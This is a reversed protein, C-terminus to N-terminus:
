KRNQQALAKAMAKVVEARAKAAEAKAKEAEAREKKEAAEKKEKAAEAKAAEAKVKPAQAVLDKFLEGVTFRRASNQKPVLSNFNSPGTKQIFYVATNAHIQLFGGKLKKPEKPCAVLEVEEEPEEEKKPKKPHIVIFLVDKERSLAELKQTHSPPKESSNVSSLAKETSPVKKTPDIYMQHALVKRLDGNSENYMQHAVVEELDGDSKVILHEDAWSTICQEAKETHLYASWVGVVDAVESFYGSNRHETYIETLAEKVKQEADTPDPAKACAAVFQDYSSCRTEMWTRMRNHFTKGFGSLPKEASYLAGLVTSSQETFSCGPIRSKLEPPDPKKIFLNFLLFASCVGGVSMGFLALYELSHLVMNRSIRFPKNQQRSRKRIHQSTKDHLSSIHTEVRQKSSSRSFRPSDVVSSTPESPNAKVINSCVDGIPPAAADDGDSVSSAIM